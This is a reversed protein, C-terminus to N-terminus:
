KNPKNKEQKNQNDKQQKKTSNTWINEITVSKKTLPIVKNLWQQLYRLGHKYSIM